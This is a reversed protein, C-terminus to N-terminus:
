GCGKRHLLFLQIPQSQWPVRPSEDGSGSAPAAIRGLPVDGRVESDAGANVDDPGRGAGDCQSM